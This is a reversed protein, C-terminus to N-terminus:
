HTEAISRKVETAIYQLALSSTALLIVRSKQSALLNPNFLEKAGLTHKSLSSTISV